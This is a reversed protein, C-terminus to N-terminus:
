SLKVGNCRAACSPWQETTSHKIVDPASILATVSTLQINQNYLTKNVKSYCCDVGNCRAASFPSKETTSCRIFRPASTLTM